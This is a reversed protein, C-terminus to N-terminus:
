IVFECKKSNGYINVPCVSLLGLFLFKARVGFKSLIRVQFTEQGNLTLQVHEKFLFSDRCYFVVMDEMCGELPRVLEELAIVANKLSKLSVDRRFEGQALLRAKCSEDGHTIVHEVFQKYHIESKFLASILHQIVEPETINYASVIALLWVRHHFLLLFFLSLSLLLTSLHM